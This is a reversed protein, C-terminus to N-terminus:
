SEDRKWRSKKELDFHEDTEVYGSQEGENGCIDRTLNKGSGVPGM